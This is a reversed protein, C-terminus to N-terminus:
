AAIAQLRRLVLPMRAQNASDQPRHGALAEEFGPTSLLGRIETRLYTRIKPSSSRVEGVISPRGDVLSVLDELDHSEHVDRRGRDKFAELKTAMFVPASVLRIVRGSRLEFDQASRFAEGFWVNGGGLVSADTPMVDVILGEHRWRCIPGEPVERFGRRRFEEEVRSLELRSAVEVTV